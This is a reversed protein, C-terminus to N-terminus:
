GWSGLTRIFPRIQVSAFLGAQAYPDGQAFSQAAALDDVEIVLLSGNPRGAEDFTPGALRLRDTADLYDVHANRTKQRLEVSDPKDTCFLAFQPM